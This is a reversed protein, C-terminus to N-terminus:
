ATRVMWTGEFRMPLYTEHYARLSAVPDVDAFREPHLQKAIYQMAIWDLLSRAMTAEIAHLANHRIAPLTDWGPRQAYAQLSRRATEVDVDYGLRVSQAQNAWISGILFVHEPAAAIVLEPALPKWGPAIHGNAINTGGALDIMEGWMAKSYSNGVVGPGGQGLEVYTKPRAAVGALRTTMDRIKSTYLDVLTRARDLAGMAHGLALTGAAHLEPKQANYDVVLIPVGAQEIQRMQAPLNAYGFAHIVVLDPRLALVREASFSQDEAAGVDALREIDPIAAIARRWTSQRNVAWQRRTFGVVKTWGDRGAVATFEEFNFGLVVREAPAKLAIMRGAADVFPAMAARARHPLAAALPLLIAARRSLTPRNSSM